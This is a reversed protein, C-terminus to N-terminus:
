AVEGSFRYFEREVRRLGMLPFSVSTAPDIEIYAKMAYAPTAQIVVRDVIPINAQELATEIQFSSPPDPIFLDIDSEPNVDGRAISGHVVAAVHRNQLALLLGLAKQRFQALLSWHESNYVVEIRDQRYEPKAAM